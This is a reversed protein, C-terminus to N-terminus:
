MKKLLELLATKQEKTMTSWKELLERQEADLAVMGSDDSFFQALTIGFGECLSELTTINPQTNRNFM